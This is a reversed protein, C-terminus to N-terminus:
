RISAAAWRASPPTPASVATMLVIDGRELFRWLRRFLQSEHVHLTDRAMQLLAGSAALVLRGTEMM